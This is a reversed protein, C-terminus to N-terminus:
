TEKHPFEKSASGVAPHLVTLRWVQIEYVPQDSGNAEGGEVFVFVAETSITSTANPTANSTENFTVPHALNVSAVQEEILFRIDATRFQRSFQEASAGQNKAQVIGPNKAQVVRPTVAKAAAIEKRAITVPAPAPGSTPGNSQILAAVSTASSVNQFAILRPAKSAVFVCAMAFGALLPVAPKWGHRARLPRPGLIQAVRMSTHRVRGLAAQALALSQRVLTKEALRTLCEAYARPKATEALVADDCAMERELTIKREIWWVGPHFFFLAKVVKQALNTWDDWRRLHALEHLLVQNLEDPSLEEMVWRPVVVVPRVFGIAIPVPTRESTCLSVPRSGRSRELTERLQLDLEVPNVEVCSKRLAHVHRLSAGVRVLCWMAVAAWAGFLYLAWSGPVTIAPRGIGAAPNIGNLGPVIAMLPLLAIAMLASFWLAFRTGSSQRHVLRLVLGAFLAIVAGEVLCDVIRIAVFRIASHQAIAEILPSVTM